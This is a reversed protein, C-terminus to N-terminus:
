SEKRAFIRRLAGTWGNWPLESRHILREEFTLHVQYGLRRYAALAPPNDARVNLVVQDCYKLLGATVAATVATAYGRGRFDAHTMVNGVVALKAAPSIVHTGAASVLRGGVRIGYYLGDSIATAPLWSAFGLQYLRNLEGIEVPLLRQVDAAFPRFHEGDVWMRLMAPGSEVRYNAAVAALHETRAAVYATRPKIVDALIAEIGRPEGMVFIPQPSYGAYQLVVAIPEGGALAVGWRTRLFERDDLDCLAYASYLRDTELFARLMARDATEHVTITGERRAAAGTTV